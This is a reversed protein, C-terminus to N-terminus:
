PYGYKARGVAESGRATNPRRSILPNKQTHVLLTLPVDPHSPTDDQNTTSHGFHNTWLAPIDETRRLSWLAEVIKVWTQTQLKTLAKNTIIM